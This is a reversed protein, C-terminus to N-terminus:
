DNPTNFRSMALDVGDAVWCFIAEVAREVAQSILERDGASPRSLVFDKDNRGNSPGIGVRLRAFREAGFEATIDKLGNHGGSSGQARLRIVGPELAMDDTVVLVDDEISLKYFGVVTAVPGGSLNMYRQPKFLLLRDDGYISEGLLGGFKKKKVQAALREALRDVVEFGANHRTGVYEGGPNGLGVILKMVAM